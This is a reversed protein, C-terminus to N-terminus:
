GLAYVLLREKEDSVVALVEDISGGTQDVEQEGSTGV